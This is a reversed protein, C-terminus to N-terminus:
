GAAGIRLHAAVSGAQGQVNVGCLSRRIELARLVLDAHDQARAAVDRRAGVVVEEDAGRVAVDRQPLADARREEGHEDHHTRDRGHHAPDDDHVHHQDAHRLPGLLDADPARHARRM